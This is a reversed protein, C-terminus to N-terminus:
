YKRRWRPKYEFKSITGAISITNEGPKLQPFDNDPFVAHASRDQDLAKYILRRNSDIYLEDVDTFKYDEGNITLTVDGSGVIHWLPKADYIETNYVIQPVPQYYVGDRRYIWPEKRITVTATAVDDGHISQDPTLTVASSIYGPIYYDSLLDFYFLESQIHGNVVTPTLWDEFEMMLQYWDAFRNPKDILFTIPLDTDDWNMSDYINAVQGPIPTETVTRSSTSLADGWKVKAGFDGSNREHYTLKAYNVYAM